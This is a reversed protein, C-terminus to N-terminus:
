ETQAVPTPSLGSTLGSGHGVQRQIVNLGAAIRTVHDQGDGSAVVVVSRGRSALRAHAAIQTRVDKLIRYVLAWVQSPRVLLSSQTQATTPSIQM